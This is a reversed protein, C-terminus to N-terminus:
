RAVELARVLATEIDDAWCRADAWAMEGVFTKTRKAKGVKVTVRRAGGKYTYGGRTDTVDAVETVREGVEDCYDVVPTRDIVTWSAGIEYRGRRTTKSNSM